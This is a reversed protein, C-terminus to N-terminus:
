SWSGEFKIKYRDHLLMWANEKTGKARMCGHVLFQMQIERLCLLCRGQIEASQERRGLTFTTMYIVLCLRWM